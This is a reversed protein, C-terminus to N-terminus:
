SYTFYATGSISGVIPEGVIALTYQWNIQNGNPTGVLTITADTIDGTGSEANLPKISEDYFAQQLANIYSQEVLGTKKSIPYKSGFTDILYSRIASTLRNAVRGFEQTSLPKTPDCATAGDNWYLGSHNEWTRLFMYQKDGLQQFDPNDMLTNVPIAPQVTGTGTFTLEGTVAVFTQGTNYTTGNNVITGTVMYTVGVVLSGSAVTNKNSNTLYGTQLSIAGDAVCNFGHGVSIKAFRGLAAGVSSIGNPQSGTICVSGNPYSDNKLTGLNACAFSTPSSYNNNLVSMNTGDIIYQLPFGAPFLTGTIFNQMAALSLMVDDIAGYFDAVDQTTAPVDYCLGVMKVRNDPDATATGKILNTMTSSGIYLQGSKAFQNSYSTKDVGVVWLLAGDGAEQYFESVQQYLAPNNTTTIGLSTLNNVSTFLYSQNLNFTGETEGQVFIMMVGDFSQPTGIPNNLVSTIITHKM